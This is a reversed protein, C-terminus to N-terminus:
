RRDLEAYTIATGESEADELFTYAEGHPHQEARHRLLGVWTVGADQGRAIDEGPRTGEMERGSYPRIKCSDLATSVRLSSRSCVVRSGSFQPLATPATM